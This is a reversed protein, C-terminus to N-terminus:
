RGQGDTAEKGGALADRKILDAKWGKPPPWRVGWSALTARTWGGSGTMAAEIKKATENMRYDKNRGITTPQTRPVSRGDDPRLTVNRGVTAPSPVNCVMSAAASDNRPAPDPQRGLATEESGKPDQRCRTTCKSPSARAVAPRTARTWHPCPTLRRKVRESGDTVTRTSSTNPRHRLSEASCRPRAMGMGVTGSCDAKAGPTGARRPPSADVIM